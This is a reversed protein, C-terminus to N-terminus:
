PALHEFAFAPPLINNFLKSQKSFGHLQIDLQNM